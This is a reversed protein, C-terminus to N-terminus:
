RNEIARRLGMFGAGVLITEIGSKCDDKFFVQYIGIVVLIASVAYTFYGAFASLLIDRIM